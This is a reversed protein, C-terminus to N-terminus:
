IDGILQKQSVVEARAWHLLKDIEEWVFELSPHSFISLPAGPHGFLGRGGPCHFGITRRRQSYLSRRRLKPASRCPSVSQTNQTCRGADAIRGKIRVSYADSHGRHSVSHLCYPNSRRQAGRLSSTRSAMQTCRRKFNSQSSGDRHKWDRAPNGSGGSSTSSAPHCSIWNRWRSYRYSQEWCCFYTTPGSRRRSSPCCTRTVGVHM